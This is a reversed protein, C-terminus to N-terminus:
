QRAWIKSLQTNYLYIACGEGENFDVKESNKLLKELYKKGLLEKVVCAISSIRRLADTCGNYITVYM